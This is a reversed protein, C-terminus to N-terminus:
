KVNIIPNSSGQVQPRNYLDIEIQKRYERALKEAQDGYVKISFSKSFQKGNARWFARWRPNKGNEFFVGSTNVKNRSNEYNTVIRLNQKRNDRGDGNIHDIQMSADKLDMIIRHMFGHVSNAAYVTKSDNRIKWNCINVKEFDEKDIMIFEEQSKNYLKIKIHDDCDYYENPFRAFKKERKYLLKM